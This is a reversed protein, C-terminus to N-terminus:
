IRWDFVSTNGDRRIEEFHESFQNDPKHYRYFFYHDKAYFFNNNFIMEYIPMSSEDSIALYNNGKEDNSINWITEGLYYTGERLISLQRKCFINSIFRDFQLFYNFSIPKIFDTWATLFYNKVLGKRQINYKDIYFENPVNKWNKKHSFINYKYSVFHYLLVEYENKFTLIGNCWKLKGPIGEIVLFDFHVNILGREQERLLVHHMSEVECDLDFIDIGRELFQYKYNCEDFCYNNNSNLIKVYDRSKTFLTNIKEDNRFVMFFGTPYDHRVSIVDYQNLLDDTIFERIRGFVLDIDCLAWFDYEKIYDEFVKGFTPKFDCFKYPRTVNVSFGLKETALENFMELSAHILNINPPLKRDVFNDTFILFDVTPNFECSKIFFDFYWPFKGFFFNILVLKKM